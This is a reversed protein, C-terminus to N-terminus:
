KTSLIWFKDQECHKLEIMNSQTKQKKDKILGLTSEHAIHLLLNFDILYGKIKMLSKGFIVLINTLYLKFQSDNCM